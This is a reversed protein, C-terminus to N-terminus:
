VRKFVINKLENDEIKVIGEPVDLRNIFLYAFAENGIITKNKWFKQPKKQLIKIDKELVSLIKNSNKIM